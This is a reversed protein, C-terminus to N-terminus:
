ASTDIRWAVVGEGSKKQPRAGVRTLKRNGPSPLRVNARTALEPDRWGGSVANSAPLPGFVAGDTPPVGADGLGRRNMVALAMRDYLPGLLRQLPVALRQTGGVVRHARPRRVVTVIARAVRAADVYPPLPRGERGTYNAAKQYIPTDVTAPLVCTVHVGLPRAEMRLTDAFGLLGHKTTVYASVYPMTMRSFLSGILVISGCGQEAMVPLVAKAGRIHGLLNVELMRQKSERHAKESM